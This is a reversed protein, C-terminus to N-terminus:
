KSEREDGTSAPNALSTLEIAVPAILTREVRVPMGDHGLKYYTMVVEYKGPVAPAVVVGEFSYRGIGNPISLASANSAFNLGQKITLLVHSGQLTGERHPARFSGTFRFSEGPGIAPLVRGDLDWVVAPNLTAIPRRRVPGGGVLKVFKLKRRITLTPLGHLELEGWMDTPWGGAPADMSMSFRGRRDLQGSAGAIHTPVDFQNLTYFRFHCGTHLPPDLQATMLMNCTTLVSEGGEGTMQCTLKVRDVIHFPLDDPILLSADKVTRLQGALLFGTAIVVAFVGSLLSLGFSWRALLLARFRMLIVGLPSFPLRRCFHDRCM